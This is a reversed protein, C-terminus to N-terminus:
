ADAINIPTNTEAVTGAIGRGMPFRIERTGVGQAIKSWLEGKAKDVLFLSCRDAEVVRAAAQVILKLLRDLDREAVLAKAVELVPVRALLELLHVGPLEVRRLVRALETEDVLRRARADELARPLHRSRAHPVAALVSRGEVDLREAGREGELPDVRVHDDHA